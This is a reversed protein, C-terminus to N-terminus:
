GQMTVSGFHTTHTRPAADRAARPPDSCGQASAIAWTPQPGPLLGGILGDPPLTSWLWRRNCCGHRADSRCGDHHGAGPATGGRLATYARVTSIRGVVGETLRWNMLSLAPRGRERERERESEHEHKHGHWQSGAWRGACVVGSCSGPRGAQGAQACPANSNPGSSTPLSRLPPGAATRVRWGSWVAFNLIVLQPRNASCASKQSLDWTRGPCTQHPPPRPPAPRPRRLLTPLPQPASPAPTPTHRCAARGCGGGGGDRGV